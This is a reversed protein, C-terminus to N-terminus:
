PAAFTIAGSAKLTGDPLVLILYFTKTGTETINIDVLGNSESVLQAAKDAVVPILLGNTAIAWGGSPATAVISDGNADDSLYAFVSARVDLNANAADKLQVTVKIIDNSEAGVAITSKAASPSKKSVPSPHVHDIPAATALVGLVATTDIGISAMNAASIDLECGAAAVAASWTPSAQTGTNHYLTKNDTDILLDGPEALGALTVGNSPTGAYSWVRRTRPIMYGM